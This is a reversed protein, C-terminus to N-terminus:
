SNAFKKLRAVDKDNYLKQGKRELVKYCVLLDHADQSTLFGYKDAIQYFKVAEKYKGARFCDNGVASGIVPIEQVTSVLGDIDENTVKSAKESISICKMIKAITVVTSDNSKMGRQIFGNLNESEGGNNAVTLDLYYELANAYPNGTMAQDSFIKRLSDSNCGIKIQSFMNFAIKEWDNNNLKDFYQEVTSGGAESALYYMAVMNIFNKNVGVGKHYCEALREYAERNGTRAQETLIRIDENKNSTCCVTCIAFAVAIILVNSIRKEGM